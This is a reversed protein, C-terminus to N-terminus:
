KKQVRNLINDFQTKNMSMISDLNFEKKIVQLIQAETFNNEKAKYLLLNKQKETITPSSQTSTQKSDEKGHTNTADSDKTDDICFLANLCYKRSYSSTSGSVQASSQGKLNEEERALAKTEIMDGTEVDILKATSEVYYRDGIQIISDNLILTAGEEKLIPKLGELIDECSRYHYKGFSNYQNKPAKLKSQINLLKKYITM